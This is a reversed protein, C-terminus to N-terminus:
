QSGYSTRLRTKLISLDLQGRSFEYEYQLGTLKVPSLRAWVEEEQKRGVDSKIPIREDSIDQIYRQYLDLM